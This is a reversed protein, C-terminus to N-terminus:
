RYKWKECGMKTVFDFSIGKTDLFHLIENQLEWVQKLVKGLSLWRVSNHYIEDSYDAEMDELLSKFEQHNLAMARITNVVSDVM